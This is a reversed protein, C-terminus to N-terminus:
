NPNLVKWSGGVRARVWITGFPNIISRTALGDILEAGSATLNIPNAVSAAGTDDSLIYIKGAGVGAATTLPLTATLNNLVASILFDDKTINYNLQILTEQSLSLSGNNHLTSNPSGVNLLLGLRKNVNDWKLEQDSIVNTAGNFFAIEGAVGAGTLGGGATILGFALGTVGVTIPDNTTLMWLSDLNAVGESVSVLIGSKVEVTSDFESWRLWIGNAGGGVTVVVYLGNQAAAAQNKVLIINGAAVAIGDVTNPAGGNLNAINATTALRALFLASVSSSGGGQYRVPM